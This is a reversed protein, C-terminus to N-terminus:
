HCKRRAEFKKGGERKRPAQAKGNPAGRTKTTIVRLAASEILLSSARDRM